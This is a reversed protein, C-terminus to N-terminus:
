TLGLAARAEDEREAARSLVDPPIPRVLDVAFCRGGRRDRFIVGDGELWCLARIFANRRNLAARGAGQLGLGMAQALRLPAWGGVCDHCRCVPEHQEGCETCNHSWALREGARNCSLRCDACQHAKSSAKKPAQCDAPNGRDVVPGVRSLTLVVLLDMAWRQSLPGKPWEIM